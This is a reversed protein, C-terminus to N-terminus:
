HGGQGLVQRRAMDRVRGEKAAQKQKNKRKRNRTGWM